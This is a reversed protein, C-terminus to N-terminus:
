KRRTGTVNGREDNYTVTGAVSTGTFQLEYTIVAGASGGNITLQSGKRVVSRIAPSHDGVTIKVDLSDGIAALVLKAERTGGGMAIELDYTGAQITTSQQSVGAAAESHADVVPPTSQAAFATDTATALCASLLVHSFAHWSM